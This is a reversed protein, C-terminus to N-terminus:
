YRRFFHNFASRLMSPRNKIQRAYKTFFVKPKRWALGLNHRWYNSKQFHVLEEQTILPNNITPVFYNNGSEFGLTDELYGEKLCLEYLESGPLPQYIFPIIRDIKIKRAFDFTRQIQERTEGPFGIILYATTEIGRSHIRKVVDEVKDLDLPKKIINNLVGQDGSEIALTLEFAGSAKMLDIMEDDLTWVAIGNPTNWNFNFGRDVMGRFIAKARSPDLSLNDDEFKLEEVGYRDKLEQMEDLVNEVSRARWKGWHNTSSCFTCKCPCGRSTWISLNRKSKYYIGMPISVEFYKEVPLLDRAPFPLEDLNEIDPKKPNSRVTDGERWVLGDVEHLNQDNRMSHVFERFRKEGEGLIIFDIAPETELTRGALFSPHTGGTVTVIDPDIDKVMRMISRVDGFQSSFLCTVGVMDPKSAEIRRRIEDMPLGYRVLEHGVTEASDHGEILCDLLEVDVDERVMGALGAIGMPVCCMCEVFSAQIMPPFILLIKDPKRYTKSSM